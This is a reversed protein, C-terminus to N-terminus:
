IGCDNINMIVFCRIKICNHTIRLYSFEYFTYSAFNQLIDLLVASDIINLPYFCVKAWTREITDFREITNNYGRFYANAYLDAICNDDCNKM